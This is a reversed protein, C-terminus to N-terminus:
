DYLLDGSSQRQIPAHSRRRSHQSAGIRAHSLEPDGYLSDLISSVLDPEDVILENDQLDDVETWYDEANDDTQGHLNKQRFVFDEDKLEEEELM